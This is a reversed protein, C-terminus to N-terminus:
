QTLLVKDIIYIKGNKTTLPKRLRADNGKADRVYLDNDVKVIVVEQGAETKLKKGETVEIPTESAVIHYPLFKPLSLGTDKVFNDVAAKSPAFFVVNTAVELQTMAPLTSDFDVLHRTADLSKYVASTTQKTYDRGADVEVPASATNKSGSKLFWAGVGLGGIVLIALCIYM